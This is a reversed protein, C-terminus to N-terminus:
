DAREQEGQGLGLGARHRTPLPDDRGAPPQPCGHLPHLLLLERPVRIAVVARFGRRRPVRRQHVANGGLFATTHGAATLIEALTPISPDLAGARIRKGEKTKSWRGGLGNQSPYLGTMISATSPRTWSAQSIANQFVVGQRALEDVNPTGMDKGAYCGLHDARMADVLILVVHTM